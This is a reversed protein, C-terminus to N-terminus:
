PPLTLCIKNWCDAGKQHHGISTNTTL